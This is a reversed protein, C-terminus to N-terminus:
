KILKDIQQKLFRNEKELFEIYDQYQRIDNKFSNSKFLIDQNFSLLQILSIELLEAIKVVRTLDVKTVGNEINSYTKQSISLQDAMYQQTYDKLERVKRIQVGIDIPM